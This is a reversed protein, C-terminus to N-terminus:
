REEVQSADKNIKDGGEEVVENVMEILSPTGIKLLKKLCRINDAAVFFKNPIKLCAIPISPLLQAYRRHSSPHESTITLVRLGEEVRSLLEASMRIAAISSIYSLQKCNGNIYHLKGAM